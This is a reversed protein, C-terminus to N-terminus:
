YTLRHIPGLNRTLQGGLSSLGGGLMGLQQGEAMRQSANLQNINESFLTEGINQAATVGQVGAGVNSGIAGLAGPLATGHQANQSTAQATAQARSVIGQRIIERKRRSADLQMQTMRAAEARKQSAISDKQAEAAQQSGVVQLATGGASLTLGGILAITSFGAM